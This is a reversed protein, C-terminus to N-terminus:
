RDTGDADADPTPAPSVADGPDVPGDSERSLADDAPANTSQHPQAREHDARRTSVDAELVSVALRVVAWPVVVILSFTAAWALVFLLLEVPM